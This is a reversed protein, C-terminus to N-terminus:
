HGTDHRHGAGTHAPVDLAPNRDFFGVPRLWFGTYEVPMVPWDEPRGVHTSGFSHWVVIEEDEIPRDAETWRPLGDGGPHQNPYSGAAHRRGPDDRTVWLHKTAFAARRAFPSGPRALLPPTGEPVLEYGVPEGLRNRSSPNVIRWRRNRLPDALRQAELETRLPTARARWANGHENEAGDALEAEVECVSNRPGDVQFALRVNFLHQHHVAALEPTVRAGWEYEEGEPVAAAQVIGNLKAEFQISGDLYLYWFFGYDYNGVDAFFSLVLRRSRRVEHSGYRFESHKWLVGYDEEHVCVANPITVAKGEDDALVLDLYRIEGLCDCGPELSDTLKGLGYEGADFASRWFWAPRPDAYPVVMESISVRHLIPRERGGDEYSVTHLVLGERANTSVRLRWRQWRIEHGDLEFSPGDPQVIELPKLGTREPLGLEAGYAGSEQPVPVGNEDILKVVRGENLDVYAILGELPRAYGNDRDHVRAYAPARVLRRGREEEFGFNGASFPDVQVLDVDAVGRREVAARWDPDAKVIEELAFIEELLISPQGEDRPMAQWSEVRGHTLSVVAEFFSGDAKDLVVLFARREVPDGPRFRALEERDPEELLVLAFRATERLGQQERLLACAAELEPGTLPDLPHAVATETGAPM